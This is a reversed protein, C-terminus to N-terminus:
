PSPHDEYLAQLEREPPQMWMRAPSRFRYTTREAPTDQHSDRVISLTADVVKITTKVQRGALTGTITVTGPLKATVMTKPTNGASSM